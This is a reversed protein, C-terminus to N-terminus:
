LFSEPMVSSHHHAIKWEGDEYVYVFSYRAKVKDGTAGMTFEYIGADQCWNHGVRVNSELIVGQPKKQLFNDFYDKLGSYDTRPTDSVTPLLVPQKAYRKAVTDSDLTALADNWLHFLGKVEDETIAKAMLGEPMMSSHHHAIKWEGDEYVYVFTYRAKVKAGTAGMTFEYLGVDQCWNVGVTAHSELIVGQPKMKLFNDFYDKISAYDTRPTDSVTPLLVGKKAYRKAVTDSNLTALADNWLHFLQKAGAEDISPKQEPMTSSHHHSIKWEGNENVYTFTYRAKVKAGTAGMTFEYIGADQAWGPGMVIKGESIVGQPKMKLFADFYDKISAYDTRPTDSVTPLLIPDSSYRSAVKDSDLTALADNWLNFLGRVEDKSIEAGSPASKSGGGFFLAPTTPQYPAQLVSTAKLASSTFMRTTANPTMKSQQFSPVAAVVASRQMKVTKALTQALSKKTMALSM